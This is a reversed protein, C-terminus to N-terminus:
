KKKSFQKKIARFIVRHPPTRYAELIDDWVKKMEEIDRGIAEVLMLREDVM